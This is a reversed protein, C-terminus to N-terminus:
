IKYPLAYHSFCSHHPTVLLTFLDVRVANTEAVIPVTGTHLAGGAGVTALRYLATCYRDGNTDDAAFELGM